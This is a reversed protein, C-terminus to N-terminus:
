ESKSKLLQILATRKPFTQAFKSCFDFKLTEIADKDSKKSLM